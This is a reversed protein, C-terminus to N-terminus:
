PSVVLRSEGFNEENEKRRIQNNPKVQISDRGFKIPKFVKLLEKVQKELEEVRQELYM